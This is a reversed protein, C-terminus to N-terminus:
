AGTLEMMPSDGYLILGAACIAVGYPLGEGATHLRGLWKVNQLREPLPWNRFALLAICIPAGCLATYVLLHSLDSWGFWLGAAALLKADGGGIINFAFLAFGAALLLGGAVFHWGMESWSMGAALALVPFSVILVISIWNSITMTTIDSVAAYIMAAPFIVLILFNLM